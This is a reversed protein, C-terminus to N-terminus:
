SEEDFKLIDEEWKGNKFVKRTKLFGENILKQITSDIVYPFLLRTNSRGKVYGLGFMALAIGVAIYGNLDSSYNM